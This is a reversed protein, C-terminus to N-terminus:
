TASHDFTWKTAGDTDDTTGVGVAQRCTIRYVHWPPPGGSPATFPATFADGEVEAPWGAGRYNEAVRELTDANTVRHAEGSFVVDFGPLKVTLTCAPNGALNRSKRTGPGSVIFWAGDIWMAGIPAAHPRGDPLVTGLVTYFGEGPVDPQKPRADLVERVQSWPLPEDGYQNLNVITVPERDIM